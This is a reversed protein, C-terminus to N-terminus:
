SERSTQGHLVFRSQVPDRPALAANGLASGAVPLFALLLVTLGPARGAAVHWLFIFVESSKSKKIVVSLPPSGVFGLM